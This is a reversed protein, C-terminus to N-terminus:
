LLGREELLPGVHEWVRAEVDEATGSADVLRVRGPEAEAIMRFGERVARHFPDLELELRDAGERTARGLSVAHDADLVLTLDPHLGGTAWDNLARIWAHDIGRAYGQYALTSDSFRDCLVVAGAELSPRILADVLQARSAEYLFLEARPGPARHRGSTAGEAGEAREEREEAVDETSLLLRRIEEGLPTGGPEKTAVVDVRARELRERLARLQTSKGTGEGGEFTVFVGALGSAGREPRSTREESRGSM